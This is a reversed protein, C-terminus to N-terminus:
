IAEAHLTVIHAVAQPTLTTGNVLYGFASTGSLKICKTQVGEIFLTTGLDVVQAIALAGLYAARDATATGGAGLDYAADDAAASPPTVNYLPVTWATTEITGGNIQLSAWIIRLQSGPPPPAGNNNLFVFEAAAGNCDGATHSTAAPTFTATAVYGNTGYM